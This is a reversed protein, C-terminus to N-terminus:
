KAEKGPKSLFWALNAVIILFALFFHAISQAAMGQSGEGAYNILQEYETAGKLGGLLGLLQKSNLYPYSEPVSVATCGGAVPVGQYDCSFITVYDALGPRGGSLSIALKFDRINNIGSTLPFKSTSKGAVDQPFNSTFDNGLSKLLVSGGTKYGLNLYDVGYNCGYEEAAQAMVPSAMVAGEPWLALAVVKLHRSFMHRLLAKAMPDCEIKTSPGYDFSLLVLSGPPLAEVYNYIDRVPRSVQVPLKFPFIYPIIVALLLALYIIRRDLNLLKKM